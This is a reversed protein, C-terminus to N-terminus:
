PPPASRVKFDLPISVLVRVAQGKVRAPKFRAQRLAALAVANFGSDPSEVVRLSGAEPAGTTDIICQVTVRGEIGAQRLREPYAPSPFSITAPPEDVVQSAFVEGTPAGPPAPAPAAAPTTTAQLERRAVRSLATDGGLQLVHQFDARASDRRSALTYAIARRLLADADRPNRGLRANLSRFDLKLGRALATTYDTRAQDTKGVWSHLLAREFYPYAAAPPSLAIASDVDALARALPGLHSYAIGRELYAFGRKPEHALASDYDAIARRYSQEIAYAEGRVLYADGDDPHRAIAFNLDSLARALASALTAQSRAAAAIGAYARARGIRPRMDAPARAIAVSFDAAASDYAGTVQYVVGRAFSIGPADPQLRLVATLDRIAHAQYDAANTAYPHEEARRNYAEARGYLAQAYDPNRAIASDFCAIAVGMDGGKLEQMGRLYFSAAFKVVDPACQAALGAGGPTALALFLAAALAKVHGGTSTM